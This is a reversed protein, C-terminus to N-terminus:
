VFFLYLESIVSFFRNKKVSTYLFGINAYGGSRYDGM